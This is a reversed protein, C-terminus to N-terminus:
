ARRGGAEYSEVDMQLDEAPLGTWYSLAQLPVGARLAAATTELLAQDVLAASRALAQVLDRSVAAVRGSGDPHSADLSEAAERMLRAIREREGVPVASKWSITGDARQALKRLQAAVSVPQDERRVWWPDMAREGSQGAGRRRRVLAGWWATLASSGPVAGVKGLWPRGIRRGLEQAFAGNPPFLRIREAGSDQWVLEAVVPDVLAGAVTVVEPFTAAERAM